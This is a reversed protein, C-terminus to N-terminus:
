RAHGRALADARRLLTPIRHEGHMGAVHRAAAAPDIGVSTVYLPRDSDGRRVEVVGSAGSGADAGAFRTKAVGIVVGGRADHLRKGLGPEDPGLWVYADVIVADLAPMRALVELLYPLEREYFAGPQYAAPRGPARVVVEIRALEDTWADAGICAATVGTDRYDVDLCGIM